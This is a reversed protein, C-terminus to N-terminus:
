LVADRPPRDILRGGGRLVMAPRVTTPGESLPFSMRCPVLTTCCLTNRLM